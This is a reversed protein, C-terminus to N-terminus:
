DPLQSSGRRNVVLLGGGATGSADIGPGTLHVRATGPGSVAIDARGARLRRGDLTGSGSLRARVGAVQGRLEANGPGSSTYLLGTGDLAAQLDGSGRVDADLTDSVRRLALNGPGRLIVSAKVVDLDAGDIDGSGNVQAQFEAVAGRLVANGPGSLRADLRRLALGGAALDGSGSIRAQLEGDIGALEVNGPGSMTLDVKGARLRELHADGSGSVHLTLEGVQGSARLDGPGDLTLAIREGQVGDLTVDGSGSIRLRALQPAGVSLTIRPRPPTYGFTWTVRRTARVVLTDGRVFAEVQGLQDREGRLALGPPGGAQVTIDFPGSAEIASFAGVTRQETIASGATGARTTDIALLGAGIAAAILTTKLVTHM